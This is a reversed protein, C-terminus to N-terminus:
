QANKISKEIDIVFRYKVDSKVTRDYAESIKDATIIEIESVVGKEACFDLMEQTEKIGGILSGALTRGKMLLTMGNVQFPKPNGGVIVMARRPKLLNIFTQIDHEASVTDLIFDYTGFLAKLADEDKTVVFKDAGLKKADQEKSPSTSFVTVEAGYAHAFKVGMHGLGGLGVVGVKKGNTVFEKFQHIPSFTTIGACLLPAVAALNDKFKDSVKLAFQEDVVYKNSYGGYTRTKKDQYTSNYTGSMGKDCFQEQHDKCQGCQRCSDVICGIGALDGVKFNKVKSGVQSVKGVIEHGPVMPFTAKGWEERVQHIDSHCIGAWLIDIVIDEELVDRREFDWKKFEGHAQQVAFGTTQTPM